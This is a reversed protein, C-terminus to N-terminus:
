SSSVTEKVSYADDATYSRAAIMEGILGMSVLNMGLIMFLVGLLLLPRHGIPVGLAWQVSLYADIVFGVAGVVLGAAGFLHLPRLTYRTLFMVTMLDVLGKLFRSSGYKSQGFRRPHHKVPIEAVRFGKWHALAPIYRHLEGYIRIARLVEARYAKFGCNFDHLELGSMRATVANFLKSPLTKSLPDHRKAKWGSVLDWGENIKELFRPVEAPDDQLDADMSIVVRGHAREFGATLAAAKGFNRRLRIGRAAASGKVIARIREWSGDRSGDDVYLIEYRLGLDSLVRELREQLEVLSQEEDFVPVVVSVDM